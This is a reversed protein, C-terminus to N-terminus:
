FAAGSIRHEPVPPVYPAEPEEEAERKRQWLTFGIGVVAIGFLPLIWELWSLPLGSWPSLLVLGGIIM